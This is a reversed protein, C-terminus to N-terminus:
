SHLDFTKLTVAGPDTMLDEPRVALGQGRGAGVLRDTQPIEGAQLEQACKAPVLEFDKPEDGDAPGGGVDGLRQVDAHLGHARVAGPDQLLGAESRVGVDNRVRDTVAEDSRM